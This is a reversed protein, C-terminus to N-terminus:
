KYKNNEWWARWEDANERFYNGTIQTLAKAAALRVGDVDRLASILAEVARRDKIEGLAEAAKRRVNWESDKLATILPEVSRYDKIMGLLIAANSRLNANEDNLASILLEFASEGLAKAALDRVNQDRDKLATTILPEIARSDKIKGLSEAAIGRIHADDENLASILVDTGFVEKMLLSLKVEFDSTQFVKNLSGGPNQYQYDGKYTFLKDPPNVLGEFEKEIRYESPIEFIITGKLHAGTYLYNSQGGFVPSYSQGFTTGFANIRLIADNEDSEVVQIGAKRLWNEASKRFPLSVKTSEGYREEIVLRVKKVQKSVVNAHEDAFVLGILALNM